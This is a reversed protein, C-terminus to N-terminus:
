ERTAYKHVVMATPIGVEGHVLSDLAVDLLLSATRSRKDQFDSVIYIDDRTRYAEFAVFENQIYDKNIRDMWDYLNDMTYYGMKYREQIVDFIDKSEAKPVTKSFERIIDEGDGYIGIITLNDNYNSYYVDAGKFVKRIFGMFSLQDFAYAQAYKQTYKALQKADM